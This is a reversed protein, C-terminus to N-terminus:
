AGGIGLVFGDPCNVGEGTGLVMHYGAVLEIRPSAMPANSIHDSITPKNM